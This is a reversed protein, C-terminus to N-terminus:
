SLPQPEPFKWTGNLIEKRPRYLRVTYNWDTDIPLCNPIKGDCGDFQVDVAGDAAKTATLNNIAYANYPNEQFFGKANYCSISWFGDVPVDVPVHLKYVTKGDNEKPTFSLYAAEKDPNGGWGAASGILFRIPDVDARSGFAHAFNALTSALVLLADRVKKHSEADWTTPEFAGPGGPQQIAVSDQLRHVEDLDGPKEPEVLTRVIAAMYRTGIKAKDFTKSGTGYVVQHTYQDQDIIQASMFRKGSDPLTITVPGADLDFVGFSYLTDRNMRIVAQKDIPTPERNHAFKGFGGDRATKVFYTDTEARTFNDPTVKNTSQALASSTITAIAIVTVVQTRM